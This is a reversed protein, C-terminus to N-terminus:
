SSLWWKSISKLLATPTRKNQSALKSVEEAHLAAELALSYQYLSASQEEISASLTGALYLILGIESEQYWDRQIISHSATKLDLVPTLPKQLSSSVRRAAKIQDDLHVLDSLAVLHSGYSTFSSTSTDPSFSFSITSASSSSSLM